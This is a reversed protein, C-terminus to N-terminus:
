RGREQLREQGSSQTEDLKAELTAIKALMAAREVAQAEAQERTVTDLKEVAADREKKFEDRASTVLGYATKTYIEGRNLGIVFLIVMVVPVAQESIWDWTM